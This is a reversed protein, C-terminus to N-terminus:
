EEELYVLNIMRVLAKVVFKGVIESIDVNITGSEDQIIVPKTEIIKIDHMLAQRFVPLRLQFREIFEERSLREEAM